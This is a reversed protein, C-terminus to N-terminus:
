YEHAVYVRPNYGVLITSTNEGCKLFNLHNKLILDFDNQMYNKFPKLKRLMCGNKIIKTGISLDLQFSDIRALVVLFPHINLFNFSNLFM